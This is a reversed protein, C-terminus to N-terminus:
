AKQTPQLKLKLLSCAPLRTLVLLCVCLGCAGCSERSQGPVSKPTRGPSERAVGPAPEKRSKGPSTRPM